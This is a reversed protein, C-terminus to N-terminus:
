ALNRSGSLDEQVIKPDIVHLKNQNRTVQRDAYYGVAMSAGAAALGVFPNYFVSALSAVQVCGAALRIRKDVAITKELGEKDFRNDYRIEATM